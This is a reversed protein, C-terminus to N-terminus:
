HDWLIYRKHAVKTQYALMDQYIYFVSIYRRYRLVQYKPFMFNKTDDSELFSECYGTRGDIKIVESIHLTNAERTVFLMM